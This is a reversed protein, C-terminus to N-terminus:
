TRDKIRTDTMIKDLIKIEEQSYSWKHNNFRRNAKGTLINGDRTIFSKEERGIDYNLNIM